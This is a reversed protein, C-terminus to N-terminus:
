TPSLQGLFFAVLRHLLLQEALRVLFPEEDLLAHLYVRVGEDLAGLAELGSRLDQRVSRQQLHVQLVVALRDFVAELGDLEVGLEDARVAPRALTQQVQAHELLAQLQGVLPQRDVVHFLHFVDAVLRQPLEFRLVGLRLLLLYLRFFLVPLQDVLASLEADHEAVGRVVRERLDVIYASSVFRLSM